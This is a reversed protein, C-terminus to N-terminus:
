NIKVVPKFQLFRKPNEVIITHVQEENIGKAYMVPVIDRLIHAYGFGGFATMLEKLFSDQSILINGLYGDEILQMIANIRQSESPFEMIHGQSAFPTMLHGFTDYEIFCGADALKRIGDLSYGMIDIHGIVTHNLDAGAEELISAIELGSTDGSGPHISLPAGTKRQAIACARLVKREDEQLPMSCGIEGILGSCIRTDGVGITIDKIIERAIELETMGALEPPHSVGVYYGAGMIINLGTAQAIRKLGLPNRGLGICSVDVVTNGGAQKFLMLENILIEENNQIYNDLNNLRHTRVWWLNEQSVPQYALIKETPDTPEIFFVRADTLIHEHPLTIGLEEADIVGLVTQVKGIINTDSM